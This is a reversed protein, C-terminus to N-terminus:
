TKKIFRKKLIKKFLSRDAIACLFFLLCLPCSLRETQQIAQPVKTRTYRIGTSKRM